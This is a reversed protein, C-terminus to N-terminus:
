MWEVTMGLKTVSVEDGGMKERDTHAAESRARRQCPLSTPAPPGHTKVDRSLRRTVRQKEQQVDGDGVRWDDGDGWRGIM